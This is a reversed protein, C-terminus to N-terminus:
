ISLLPDQDSFTAIEITKYKQESIHEYFAEKKM